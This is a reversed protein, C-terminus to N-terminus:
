DAVRGLTPPDIRARAVTGPGNGGLLLLWGAKCGPCQAIMPRVQQGAQDPVAFCQAPEPERGGGLRQGLVLVWKAKVGNDAPGVYVRALIRYPARCECILRQDSLERFKGSKAKADALVEAANREGIASM